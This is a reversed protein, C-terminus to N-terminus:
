NRVLRYLNILELTTAQLFLLISIMHLVFTLDDVLLILHSLDFLLLLVM